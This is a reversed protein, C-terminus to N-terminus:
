PFNSRSIGNLHRGSSRADVAHRIREGYDGRSVRRWSKGGCKYNDVINRGMFGKLIFKVNVGDFVFVVSNFTVM